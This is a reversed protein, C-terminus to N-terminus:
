FLINTKIAYIKSIFRFIPVSETFRFVSKFAMVSFTRLYKKLTIKKLKGGVVNFHYSFEIRCAQATEGLPPTRM